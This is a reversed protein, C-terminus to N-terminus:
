VTRTKTFWGTVWVVAVVAMSYGALSHWFILQHMQDTSPFPLMCVFVTAITLLGTVVLGWFGFSRLRNSSPHQAMGILGVVAYAPLVFVMAGSAAMHALLVEAGLPHGGLSPLATLTLVVVIVLLALALIRNLLLMM